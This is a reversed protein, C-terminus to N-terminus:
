HSRLRATRITPAEGQMVTWAAVLTNGDSVMQPFGSPRGSAMGTINQEPGYSGDPHIIRIRLVDGGDAAEDLWSIAANGNDLLAVDVRGGPTQEAINLAQSFSRGGNESRAFRVRPIDGAMTFWAVVVTDAAAAIAPGNVPCGSVKWGDQHVAHGAQWIGDVARAIYIDRIESEDRNRYVAVPGQRTIAVDTQCCDCVLPDMETESKIEGGATIVASRLTMGTGAPESEGHENQKASHAHGMEAGASNRGDLWVLGVGEQWPFLSVFGHETATNDRHPTIAESWNMGGDRSISVSVDYSYPGGPKKSLWHAAWLSESVPAVSPFDAWNVFWHDGEAVTSAASWGSDELISFRLRSKEGSPELWSLVITGDPGKALNPEASGESASVPLEIFDPGRNVPLESAFLAMPLMALLSLYSMAQPQKV